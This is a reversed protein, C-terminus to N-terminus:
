RQNKIFKWSSPINFPLLTDEFMTFFWNYVTLDYNVTQVPRIKKSQQYAAFNWRISTPQLHTTNIPISKTESAGSFGHDQASHEM